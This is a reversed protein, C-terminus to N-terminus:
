RGPVAFSAIEAGLREDVAPEYVGIHGRPEPPLYVSKLRVKAHRAVALRWPPDPDYPDGALQVLVVRTRAPWAARWLATWAARAEAQREPKTGFAAPSVAVIADALGPHALATM